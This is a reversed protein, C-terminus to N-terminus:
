HEEPLSLNTKLHQYLRTGRFCKFIKSVKATDIILVKLLKPGEGSHRFLNHFLPFVEHQVGDKVLFFVIRTLENFIFLV